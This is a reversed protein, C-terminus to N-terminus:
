PAAATFILSENGNKDFLTLSSLSWGALRWATGDLSPSDSGLSGCGAAAFLTVVIACTLLMATLRPRM